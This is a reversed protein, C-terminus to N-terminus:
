RGMRKNAVREAILALKNIGSLNTDVMREVVEELFAVRERLKEVEEDLEYRTKVGQHDPM